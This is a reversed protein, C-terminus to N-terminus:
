FTDRWLGPQRILQYIKNSHRLLFAMTGADVDITVFLNSEYCQTDAM